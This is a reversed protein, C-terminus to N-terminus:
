DDQEGEERGDSTVHCGHSAPSKTDEETRRMKGMVGGEKAGILPLCGLGRVKRKKGKKKKYIYRAGSGVTKSCVRARSTFGPRSKLFAAVCKQSEAGALHGM